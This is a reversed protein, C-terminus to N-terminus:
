AAEAVWQMALAQLAELAEGLSPDRAALWGIEGVYGTARGSTSSWEKTVGLAQITPPAM